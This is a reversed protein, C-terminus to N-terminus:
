ICKLWCWWSLSRGSSPPFLSRCCVSTFACPHTPLGRWVTFNTLQANSKTLTVKIGLTGTIYNLCKLTYNHSAQGNSNMILRSWMGKFKLPSHVTRLIIPVIGPTAPSNTHSQMSNDLIFGELRGLQTQLTTMGGRKAYIAEWLSNEIKGLCTNVPNSANGSGPMARTGVVEILPTPPM